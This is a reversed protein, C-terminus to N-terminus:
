RCPGRYTAPRAPWGKARARALYRASSPPSPAVSVQRHQQHEKGQLAVVCPNSAPLTLPHSRENVMARPPVPTGRRRENRRARRQAPGDPLPPVPAQPGSRSSSSKASREDPMGARGVAHPCRDMGGVADIAARQLEIEIEGAGRAVRNSVARQREVQGGIVLDRKVHAGVRRDVIELELQGVRSAVVDPPEIARIERKRALPSLDPNALSLDFEGPTRRGIACELM